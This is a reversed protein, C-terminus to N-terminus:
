EHVAGADPRVGDPVAARLSPLPLGATTEEDADELRSRHARANTAALKWFYNALEHSTGSVMDGVTDYIKAREREVIYDYLPRCESRFARRDDEVSM